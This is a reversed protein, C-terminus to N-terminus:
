EMDMVHLLNVNLPLDPFLEDKQELQAAVKKQEASATEKSDPPAGVLPALDDFDLKNSLLNATLVPKKPGYDVKVEGSVDSEGIRGQMKTFNWTKNERELHGKLSYPPTPPAPVGLLPFLESMD